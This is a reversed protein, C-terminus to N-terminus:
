RQIEDKEVEKQCKSCLGEWKSPDSISKSFIVGRIKGKSKFVKKRHPNGTTLSKRESYTIEGTAIVKGCKHCKIEHEKTM